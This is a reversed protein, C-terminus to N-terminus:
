WARVVKVLWSEKEALLEQIDEVHGQGGRSAWHVVGRVIASFNAENHLVQM